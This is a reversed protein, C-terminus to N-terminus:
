SSKEIKKKIDETGGALETQSLLFNMVEPTFRDFTENIIPLKVGAEDTLNWDKILRKLIEKGKLMDSGELSSVDEIDKWLLTNYIEVESDPISPISVKKITRPDRYFVM